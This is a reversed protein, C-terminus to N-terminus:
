KRKRRQRYVAGETVGLTAAIVKAPLSWDVTKWRNKFSVMGAKRRHKEVSHIGVGLQSSIQNNALSWDVLLWDKKTPNIRKSGLRVHQKDWCEKCLGGRYIPNKSHGSCM